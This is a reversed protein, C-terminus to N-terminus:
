QEQDLEIKVRSGHGDSWREGVGVGVGFGVGDGQLVLADEAGPELPLPDM